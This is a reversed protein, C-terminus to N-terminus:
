DRGGEREGGKEIEIGVRGRETGRETGDSLAGNGLQQDGSGRRRRVRWVGGQEKFVGLSVTDTGHRHRACVRCLCPIQATCLHRADKIVCSAADAGHLGLESGGGRGRVSRNATQRNRM